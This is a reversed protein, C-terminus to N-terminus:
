FVLFVSSTKRHGFMAPSLDLGKSRVIFEHENIKLTDKISGLLELVRKKSYKECTESILIEYKEERRLVGFGEKRMMKLQHSLKAHGYIFKWLGWVM